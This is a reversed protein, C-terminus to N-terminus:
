MVTYAFPERVVCRLLFSCQLDTPSFVQEQMGYAISQRPDDDNATDKARPIEM